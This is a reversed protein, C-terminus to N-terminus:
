ATFKLKDDRKRPNLGGITSTSNFIPKRITQQGLQEELPLISKPLSIFGQQSDEIEPIDNERLGGNQKAKESLVRYKAKLGEYKKREAARKQTGETIEKKLSEINGRLREM